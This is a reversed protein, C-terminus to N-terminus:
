VASFRLRNQELVTNVSSLFLQWWVVCASASRYWLMNEENGSLLIWELAVPWIDMYSVRHERLFFLECPLHMVSSDPCKEYFDQPPIFVSVASINYVHLGLFTFCSLDYSSFHEFQFQNPYYNLNQNFRLLTQSM